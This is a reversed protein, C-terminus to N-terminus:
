CISNHIDSLRHDPRSLFALMSYSLTNKLNYDLNTNKHLKPTNHQVILTIITM